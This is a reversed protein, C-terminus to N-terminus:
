GEVAAPDAASAFRDELEPCQEEVFRAVQRDSPRARLPWSALAALTASAVTAVVGLAVLPLGRPSLWADAAAAALVVVAVSGAGRAIAGLVAAGLGRRRVRDWLARLELDPSTISDDM